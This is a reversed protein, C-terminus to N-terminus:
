APLFRVRGGLQTQISSFDQSTLVAGGIIYQRNSDLLEVHIQGNLHLSEYQVVEIEPNAEILKVIDDSTLPQM